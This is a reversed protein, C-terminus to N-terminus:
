FGGAKLKNYMMRYVIVMAVLGMVFLIGMVVPMIIGIIENAFLTDDGGAAVEAFRGSSFARYVMILSIVIAVLGTFMIYIFYSVVFCVVTRSITPRNSWVVSLLVVGTLSFNIPYSELSFLVLNTGYTYEAIFSKIIAVLDPNVLCAVFCTLYYPVNVLLTTGIGFYLFLVMLKEGATVPLLATTHHYDHRVLAIPALFILFGILITPLQAVILLKLSISLVVAGFIATVVSLVPYWILQKRVAPYMYRWMMGVRKWSFKEM